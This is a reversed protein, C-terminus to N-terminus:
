QPESSSVVANQMSASDPAHRAAALATLLRRMPRDFMVEVITAILIVAVIAATLAAASTIRFRYVIMLLLPHHTAYLPYSIAGMWTAATRLRAPVEAGAAMAVILPCLVFLSVIVRAAPAGFDPLLLMAAALGFPVIAPVKWRDTGARRLLVGAAYAWAVRAFGGLFTVGNWGGGWGYRGATLATHAWVIAMVTAFVALRANTLRRVLLGHVVNIALEFFLSWLVGNLPFLGERAAIDPILLLHGLSRWGLHYTGGPMLGIPYAYPPIVFHALVGVALGLLMSPYLRALRLLMFRSWSLGHLLKEDYARSIVYGSMLFFLDVGLYAFRGLGHHGTALGGHILVVGVAALGRVADLTLLRRTM